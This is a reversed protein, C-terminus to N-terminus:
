HATGVIIEVRRNRQRGEATGNDAVPKSEGFGRATLRAATVGHAALWSVVAEARRRSLQLNYGDSGISDTHGDVQAPRSGEANLVAAVDTLTREADPRIAASDFDFLVAGPLLIIVATPSVEAGLRALRQDLTVTPGALHSAFGALGSTADVLTTLSMKLRTTKDTNWPASLVAETRAQADAPEPDTWDAAVSRSGAVRARPTVPRADSSVKAEKGHCAVAAAVALATVCTLSTRM